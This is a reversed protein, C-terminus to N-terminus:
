GDERGSFTIEKEFRELINKIELETNQIKQRCINILETARKVKQTLEDVDINEQQLDEIIKELERLAQSYKINRPNKKM